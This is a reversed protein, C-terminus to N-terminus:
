GTSLDSSSTSLIMQVKKLSKREVSWALGNLLTCSLINSEKQMESRSEMKHQFNRKDSMQVWSREMTQGQGHSVKMQGGRNPASESAAHLEQKVNGSFSCSFFGDEGEGWLGDEQGRRTVQIKKKRERGKRKKEKSSRQPSDTCKKWWEKNKYGRKKRRRMRNEERRM